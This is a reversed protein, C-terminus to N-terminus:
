KAVDPAPVETQRCAQLGQLRRLTDAIKRESSPPLEELSRKLEDLVSASVRSMVKPAMGAATVLAGATVGVVILAAMVARVVAARVREGQQDRALDTLRQALGGASDKARILDAFAASPTDGIGAFPAGALRLVFKSGDTFFEGKLVQIDGSGAEEGM